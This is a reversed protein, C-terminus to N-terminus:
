LATTKRFIIDLQLTEGTKPNTFGKIVSYISFGQSTLLDIIDMWLKQGSYLEKLSVETLVADVKQLSATAGKLIKYEFGQCDIKLLIKQDIRTNFKNFIDDLAHVECEEKGIYKSWPAARLHEGAMPLISSSDLNKSINIIAKGSKEGLASKPFITWKANNQTKHNLEEWAASLPEISLIEGKYNADFLTKSFQGRNTGADIIFDIGLEKICVMLHHAEDQYISIKQIEYGLKKILKKILKKM